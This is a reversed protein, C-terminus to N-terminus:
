IYEIKRYLNVYSQDRSDQGREYYKCSKKFFNYDFNHFSICPPQEIQCEEEDEQRHRKADVEKVCFLGNLISDFTRGTIKQVGRDGRSVNVKEM